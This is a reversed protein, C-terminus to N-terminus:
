PVLDTPAPPEAAEALGGPEDAAVELREAAMPKEDVVRATRGVDRGHVRMGLGLIALYDDLEALASLMAEVPLHDEALEEQLFRGRMGPDLLPEAAHAGLVAILQELIQYRWIDRVVALEDVPVDARLVVSGYWRNGKTQDAQSVARLAPIVERPWIEMRYAGPAVEELLVVKYRIHEGGPGMHRTLKTGDDGEGNLQIRWTGNPRTGGAPYVIPNQRYWVGKFEIDVEPREDIRPEDVLLHVSGRDFEVRGGSSLDLQNRAESTMAGTEIWVLRGTARSLRSSLEQRLGAQANAEEAMASSGGLSEGASLQEAMLFFYSHGLTGDPGTLPLLVDNNLGSWVSVGRSILESPSRKGDVLAVALEDQIEESAMPELRVFTFRRRLAADLAVVSHDSTNMSAALYLNEPLGFQEGSHPLLSSVGGVYCGQLPDWRQRRGPELILLAEGLVKPLNARNFEDLFLLVDRDPDEVALRAADRLVGAHLEYAPGLGSAAPALRFGEIFDEYAYSPHFTTTLLRVQRTTLSEWRQAAQEVLRTKGVGPVGQLVVNQLRRLLRILDDPQM